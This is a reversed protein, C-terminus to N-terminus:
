QVKRHEVVPRSLVVASRKFGRGHLVREWGGRGLVDIRRCDQMRAFEEFITDVADLARELHGDGGCAWIVELVRGAAYNAVQTFLVVRILDGDDVAWVMLTESLARSYIAEKTLDEWTHPVRDLMQEIHPWYHTFREPEMLSVTYGSRTDEVQLGLAEGM